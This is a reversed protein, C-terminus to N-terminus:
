VPYLICQRILMFGVVIIIGVIIFRAVQEIKNM